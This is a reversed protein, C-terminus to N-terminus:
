SDILLSRNSLGNRKKLELGEAPAPVGAGDKEGRGVEGASCDGGLGGLDSDTGSERKAVM